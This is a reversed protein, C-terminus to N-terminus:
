AVQNYTATWQEPYFRIQGDAVVELGKQALQDMRMFWQETLM